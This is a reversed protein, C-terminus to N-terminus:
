LRPQLAMVRQRRHIRVFEPPKQVKNFLHLPTVHNTVPMDIRERCYYYKIAASGVLHDVAAAKKKKKENSNNKIKAHVLQEQEQKIM